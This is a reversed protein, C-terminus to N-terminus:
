VAGSAVGGPLALAEAAAAGDAAAAGPVTEGVHTFPQDLGSRPLASRPATSSM